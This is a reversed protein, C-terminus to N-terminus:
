LMVVYLVNTMWASQVDVHDSHLLPFLSMVGLVCPSPIVLFCRAVCPIPIVLACRAVCPSPIFYVHRAVHPMLDCPCVKGCKTM